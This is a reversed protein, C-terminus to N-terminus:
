ALPEVSNGADDLLRDLKWGGNEVVANLVSSDFLAQLREAEALATVDGGPNAALDIAVASQRWEQVYDDTNIKGAIMAARDIAVQFRQDLIRQAKSDGVVVNVQAPIDRWWITTM